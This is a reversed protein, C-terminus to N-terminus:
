KYWDAYFSEGAGDRADPLYLTRDRWLAYGNAGAFLKHDKGIQSQPDVGSWYGQLTHWVGVHPIGYEDHIKRVTAGLGDPFKKPDAQYGALMFDRTSLWGDDIIVYGIPLGSSKLS